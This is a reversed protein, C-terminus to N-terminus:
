IGLELSLEFVLPFVFCGIFPPDITLKLQGIHILAYSNAGLLVYVPFLFLSAPRLPSSSTGLFYLVTSLVAAHFPM